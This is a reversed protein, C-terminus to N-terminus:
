ENQQGTSQRLMQKMTKLQVLYKFQRVIMADLRERLDLEHDFFASANIIAITLRGECAMQRWTESLSATLEGAESGDSSLRAPLLVTRIEKIIAEAWDSGSQYNSRPFKEKLYNIKDRRLCNSAQQEFATEPEVRMFYNFRLMGWEEDFAPHRPDFADATLKARLFKRLRLKRWFLDALSFVGEQETPGSPKWEDIVASHLAEFERPDEGHIVPTVSFVGHKQANPRKWKPHYTAADNFRSRRHYARAAPTRKSRSKSSPLTDSPSHKASEASPLKGLGSSHRLTPGVQPTNKSM